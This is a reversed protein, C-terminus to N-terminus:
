GATESGSITCHATSAASQAYGFAITPRWGSPIVHLTDALVQFQTFTPAFDLTEVPAIYDGDKFTVKNESAQGIEAGTLSANNAKVVLNCTVKTIKLPKTLSSFYIKCGAGTCNVAVAEEYVGLLRTPAAAAPATWSPSAGAVGFLVFVLSVGRM